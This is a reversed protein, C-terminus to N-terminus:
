SVPQIKHENQQWNETDRGFHGPRQWHGTYQSLLRKRRSVVILYSKHVLGYGGLRLTGMLPQILLSFHEYIMSALNFANRRSDAAQWRTPRLDNPHVRVRGLRDVFLLAGLHM